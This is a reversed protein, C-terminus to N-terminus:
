IQFDHVECGFAESSRINLPNLKALDYYYICFILIHILFGKLNPVKAFVLPINKFCSEVKILFYLFFPCCCVLCDIDLICSALFKLHHCIFHDNLFILIADILFM